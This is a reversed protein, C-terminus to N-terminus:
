AVVSAQLVGEVVLRVTGRLRLIARAHIQHVRSESMGLVQGIEKLTLEEYYYLSLVLRERGPLQALAQALANRLERKEAEAAPDLAAPDEMMDQLSLSEDEGDGMQLPSELSVFAISGHQMSDYLEELSLGLYAAVEEDSPPVQNEQQLAVFADEIKRVRAMATRSLISLRRLADLISGRIRAIAYSQFKVGRQPDFRDIADILGITGYAVIDDADLISPMNIAMRGVVYKVLPAYQLILAERLKPDRSESYHQWLEQAM